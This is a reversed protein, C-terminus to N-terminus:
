RAHGTFTDASFSISQPKGKDGILQDKWVDDIHILSVISSTVVIKKVSGAKAAFDLVRTTGDIAGQDCM